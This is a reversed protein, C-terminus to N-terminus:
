KFALIGLLIYAFTRQMRLRSQIAEQKKREEDIQNSLETLSQRAKEQLEKATQLSQNSNNLEQTSIALQKEAELLRAELETSQKLLMEAQLKAETLKLALLHNNQKLQEWQGIPVAVSRQATQAKVLSCSFLLSLLLAMCFSKKLM